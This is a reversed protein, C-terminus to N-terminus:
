IPPRHPFLAPRFVVLVLCLYLFCGGGSLSSPCDWGLTIFRRPDFFPALLFLRTLAVWSIAAAPRTFSFPCPSPPFCFPPSPRDRWTDGYIKNVPFPSNVQPLASRIFSAVFQMLQTSVCVTLLYSKPSIDRPPFLCCRCTRSAGIPLFMSARPTRLCPDWPYLEQFVPSLVSGSMNLPPPPLNSTPKNM